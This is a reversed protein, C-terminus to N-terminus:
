SKLDVSRRAWANNLVGRMNWLHEVSEPQTNYSDDTARAVIEVTGANKDVPVSAEWLTWSYDRGRPTSPKEELKAQMWHKGEDASLDVRIVSRGGGSWAYGRLHVTGKELDPTAEAISSIVPLEQISPM